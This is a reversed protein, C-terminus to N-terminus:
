KGAYSISFTWGVEENVSIWVASWSWGFLHVTACCVYGACCVDVDGGCWVFWCMHCTLRRLPGYIAIHWWVIECQIAEIRMVGDNTIVDASKGNHLLKRNMMILTQTQTHTQVPRHRDRHPIYAQNRSTHTHVSLPPLHYRVPRTSTSADRTTFICSVDSTHDLLDTLFSYFSCVCCLAVCWRYQFMVHRTHCICFLVTDYEVQERLVALSVRIDILYAIAACGCRCVYWCCCPCIHYFHAFLITHMM